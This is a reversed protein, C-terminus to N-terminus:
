PTARNRQMSEMIVFLVTILLMMVVSVAVLLPSVELLVADWM